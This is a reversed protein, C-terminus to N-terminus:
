PAAPAWGYRPSTSLYSIIKEAEEPTLEAGEDDVMNKIVAAWGDKDDTGHEGLQAVEHCDVCKENLLEQGAEESMAPPPLPGTPGRGPTASVAPEANVAASVRAHARADKKKLRYSEQIDPTIAVLYATVAPIEHDFFRDGITPKKAMRVVVNYWSDGTRPKSLITRMDHCKVCKTTLVDMGLEFADETVLRDVEVPPDFEIATLVHKVRSINKPSMADGFDHARVAFPISFVALILTSGLLGLGISPLAKGFHQFWRIIAIKTILLVGIIM